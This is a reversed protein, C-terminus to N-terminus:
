NKECLRKIADVKYSGMMDSNAIHIIAKYLESDGDKTLASIAEDRYSAMMDSDMIAEVADSFTAGDAYRMSKFIEDTVNSCSLIAVAGYFLYKCGKKALRGINNLQEQNLRGKFRSTRM